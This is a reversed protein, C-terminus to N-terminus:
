EIASRPGFNVQPFPPHPKIINSIKVSQVGGGGELPPLLVTYKRTKQKFVMSHRKKTPIRYIQRPFTPHLASVKGFAGRGIARLVDFDDFAVEAKPPPGPDGGDEGQGAGGDQLLYKSGKKGM